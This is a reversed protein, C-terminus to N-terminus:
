GTEWCPKCSPTFVRRYYAGRQEADAMLRRAEAADCRRLEMLARM